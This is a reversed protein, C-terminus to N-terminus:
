QLDAMRRRSRYLGLGLLGISALLVPILVYDVGALLAGLGLLPLLVALLPTTCCIVAIITGIGGTWVLKRDDV